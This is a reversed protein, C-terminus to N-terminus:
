NSTECRSLLCSLQLPHHLRRVNVRSGGITPTPTEWILLPMAKSAVVMRTKLEVFIRDGRRAARRIWACRSYPGVTVGAGVRSTGIHHHLIGRPVGDALRIGSRDLLRSAAVRRLNQYQGPDSSVPERHRNDIRHKIFRMTSIVPEPKRHTQRGALDDGVKALSGSFGTQGRPAGGITTIHVWAIRESKLRPLCSKTGPATDAIEVM